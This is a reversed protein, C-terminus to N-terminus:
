TQIGWHKLAEPDRSYSITLEEGRKIARAARTLKLSGVLRHVCSPAHSHNMLSSCLWVGTGKICEFAEAFGAANFVRRLAEADGAQVRAEGAEDVIDVCSVGDFSELLPNAGHALLLAAADPRAPCTEDVAAHLPTSGRLSPANADAGAALLLRPTAGGDWYKGAAYHLPTFGDSGRADVAAGAQLLAEMMAADKRLASWHLSTLGDADAANVAAARAAPPLADLARRLKVVSVLAAAMVTNVPDPRIRRNSRGGEEAVGVPLAIGRVLAERAQSTCRFRFKFANTSVVGAVRLASVPPALPLANRRMADVDPCPPTAAGPKAALLALAANLQPDRAANYVLDNILHHQSESKSKMTDYNHSLIAGDREEVRVGLPREVLLVEGERVDRAAFLGRGKNGAAPRCEIIGYFCEVDGQNAPAFPLTLWDYAGEAQAAAVAAKAAEAAAAHDGSAAALAQFEALADQPRRLGRLALGRRFAAKVRVREGDPAGIVAADADALAGEFDRMALRAAARNAHLTACVLADHSSRSTGVASVALAASYAREAGAWDRQAFLANGQAKLSDAAAPQRPLPAAAAAVVVVNTPNDVRLGVTGSLMVKLYPEKIVLRMGAPFARAVDPQRSGSPLFNYLSLPVLRGVSDEVLALVGSVIFSDAALVCELKTGKNVAGKRLREITTARLAELEAACVHGAATDDVGPILIVKNGNRTKETQALLMSHHARLMEANSLLVGGADLMAARELMGPPLAKIGSSAVSAMIETFLRKEIATFNTLLGPHLKGSDFHLEEALKVARSM